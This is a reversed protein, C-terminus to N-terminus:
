PMEEEHDHTPAAALLPGSLRGNRNPQGNNAHAALQAPPLLSEVDDTLRRLERDFRSLWAPTLAVPRGTNAAVLVRKDYPLAHDVSQGLRIAVDAPSVGGAISACRNLVLRRKDTAYGLSELLGMLKVGGQLTPVVNELVVYARDSLDLV